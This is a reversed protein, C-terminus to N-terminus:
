CWTTTTGPPIVDRATAVDVVWPDAVDLRRFAEANAVGIEDDLVEVAPATVM